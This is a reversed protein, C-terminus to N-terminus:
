LGSGEQVAYEVGYLYVYIKNTLTQSITRIMNSSNGGYREMEPINRRQLGSREYM